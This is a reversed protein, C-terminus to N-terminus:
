PVPRRLDLVLFHPKVQSATWPSILFSELVFAGDIGGVSRQCDWPSGAPCRSGRSVSGGHEGFCSGLGLCQPESPKMLARPHEATVFACTDMADAGVNLVSGRYLDTGETAAGGVLRRFGLSRLVDPGRDM